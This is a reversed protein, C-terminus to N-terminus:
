SNGSGRPEPARVGPADGSELVERVKGLLSSPTIPKQLFAMGRELIGHRLVTEDTYGSMCLAPLGPRLARVREVVDPGSMGPMVVDTLLLHIPRPETEAIRIAERGNAAALVDYGSRCLVAVIM